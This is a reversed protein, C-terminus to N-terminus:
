EQMVAARGTRIGPLAVIALLVAAPALFGASIPVAVLVTPDGRAGRGSPPLYGPSGHM